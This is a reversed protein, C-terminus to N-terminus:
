AARLRAPLHLWAFRGRLAKAQSCIESVAEATRRFPDYIAPGGEVAAAALVEGRVSAVLLTGQPVPRESLAALRDLALADTDRALRVIVEPGAAPRRAAEAIRHRRAEELLEVNRAAALTYM